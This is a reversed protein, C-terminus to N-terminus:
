SWISALRVRGQQSTQIKNHTHQKMLRWNSCLQKCSTTYIVTVLTFLYSM